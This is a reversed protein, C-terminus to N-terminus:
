VCRRIMITLAELRIGGAIHKRSKVRTLDFFEGSVM